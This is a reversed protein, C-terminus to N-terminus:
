CRLMADYVRSIQFAITLQVSRSLRAAAAAAASGPENLTDKNPAYRSNPHLM